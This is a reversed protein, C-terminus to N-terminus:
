TSPCRRTNSPARPFVRRSNQSASSTSAGLTSPSGVSRGRGCRRLNRPPATAPANPMPKLPETSPRARDASTVRKAVRRAAKWTRSARRLPRWSTSTGDYSPFSAVGDEDDSGGVMTTDDTTATAGPQGDSEGDPPIAGLYLTRNALVHRAGGGLQTSFTNPADGFDFATFTFDSIGVLQDGPGVAADDGQMYDIRVSALPGDFVVTATALTLTNDTPIDGEITNGALQHSTGLAITFPVSNGAADFGLVRMLDEFDTTQFDVDNLTFTLDRVEPSFGFTTQEGVTESETTAGVVNLADMYLSYFGTEGSLSTTTTRLNFFSNPPDNTGAGGFDATSTQSLTVGNLTASVFAANNGNAGWDYTVSSTGVTTAATSSSLVLRARNFTGTDVAFFDCIELSWTGSANGTYFGGLGAISVLRSYFPEATPDADGDDLAGETNTSMWIDHNNDGDGGNQAFLQLSTADPAILTVILDGRYTHDINLGVAIGSVTFSDSVSFSRVLPSACPTVVDSVAASTTNEYTYILAEAPESIAQLAALTAILLLWHSTGNLSKKIM